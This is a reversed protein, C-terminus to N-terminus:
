RAPNRLEWVRFEPTLQGSVPAATKKTFGSLGLTELGVGGGVGGEWGYMDKWHNRGHTHFM